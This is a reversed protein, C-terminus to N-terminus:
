AEPAEDEPDAGVPDPATIWETEVTALVTGACREDWENEVEALTVKEGAVLRTVWWACVFGHLGSVVLEQRTKRALRIIEREVSMPVNHAPYYFTLDTGLPHVKLVQQARTLREIKAKEERDQKPQKAKAM